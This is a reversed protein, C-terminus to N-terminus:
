LRGQSFRLSSLALHDKIQLTNGGLGGLNIIVIKGNLVRGFAGSLGAMLLVVITDM